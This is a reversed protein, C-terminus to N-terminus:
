DFDSGESDGTGVAEGLQIAAEAPKEELAGTSIVKVHVSASVERHLRIPVDYEGIQKIHDALDIKRRDVEFGREALREAIHANTVSGFLKGEDSANMEFELEVGAMQQAKAEWGAVAKRQKDEVIRRKHDLEAVRGKTALMAKGQPLLFNRGYGAKVRVIDGANGLKPIDEALIIELQAM